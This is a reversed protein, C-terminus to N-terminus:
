GIREERRDEGKQGRGQRKVELSDDLAKPRM